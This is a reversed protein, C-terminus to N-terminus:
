DQFYYAYFPVSKVNGLDLCIMIAVLDHSVLDPLEPLIYQQSGPIALLVFM